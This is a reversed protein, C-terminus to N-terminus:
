EDDDDEELKKEAWKKGLWALIKFPVSLAGGLVSAIIGALEYGDKAMEYKDKDNDKNVM